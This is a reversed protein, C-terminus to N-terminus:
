GVCAFARKDTQMHQANIVCAGGAGALCRVTRSTGNAEAAQKGIAQVNISDPVRTGHLSSQLDDDDLADKRQVKRRDERACVHLDEDVAVVVHAERAADLAVDGLATRQQTTTDNVSGHTTEDCGKHIAYDQRTELHVIATDVQGATAHRM